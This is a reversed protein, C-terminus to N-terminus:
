RSQCSSLHSCIEAESNDVEYWRLMGFTLYLVNVGQEELAIRARSRINYLTAELQEGSVATRVEGPKLVPETPKVKKEAAQGSEGQDNEVPEISEGNEGIEEGRQVFVLKRESRVLWDFIAEDQPATILVNGRKVQRFFL